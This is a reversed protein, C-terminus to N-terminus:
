EKTVLMSTGIALLVVGGIGNVRRGLSALNENVPADDKIGIGGQFVGIIILGAGLVILLWGIFKKM